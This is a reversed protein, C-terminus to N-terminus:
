KKRGKSSKKRSKKATSKKKGGADIFSQAEEVSDFTDVVAGGPYSRVQHMQKGDVWIEHIGLRKAM